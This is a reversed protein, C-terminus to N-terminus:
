LLLGVGLGTGTALLLCLGVVAGFRWGGSYFAIGSKVVSNAVVAITIGLAAVNQLLLGQQAQEALTLTIADVDALGSVLCAAYLGSDGFYLRALRAVLLIFVFFAAFKLAPGLSFPNKLKVQERQAGEAQKSSVLWLVGSAIVAVGAMAGIPWALHMALNRDLLAVVVLVRGFMTANAGVTAFACPLRWAPQQKAQAAMAATVATSSTLGGLLGTLGLGKRAGLFRTLFYGVYGIGSILIVLFTVKFPNFAEYPDLARDPMLPLVIVIIVLFKLTDTLEVRRMQGVLKHAFRKSALLVTLVLAILGAAQMHTHCLIGLGCTAIAALETTIGVGLHTARLYLAIILLSVGALTLPAVVPYHDSALGAILGLLSLVTFTRMGLTDELIGDDPQASSDAPEEANPPTSESTQSAVAAKDQSSLGREIGILVGIGTAYAIKVFIEVPIEM